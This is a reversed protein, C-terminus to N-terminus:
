KLNTGVLPEVAAVAREVKSSQEYYSLEYGNLTILNDLLTLFDVSGVEYGAIASELALTSQPILTTGYLRRLKQATTIVLHQDKIKFLLVATVNELRKREVQEGAAAEAVAPRQKQWFYLPVKIGVTMGFMEPMGPRNFYTFGFSFDPYLEKEALEVAYQGRDMKRRQMKLTPSNVLALENLEGLAYRFEAPKIEDPKPIPSESDRFILSNLRAEAAEKRQELLALQEILKSIEVQAKLLDQQIGKGVAYRAEAIKELKELLEKNKATIEIAKTLFCLDFYTDKVEAVVNLRTQEYAWRESEVDMSAMKGKLSLKGPFPLEQSFSLMRASSPDGKQIQFGPFPIINGAYGVSLTPDPLARTQPVRAQFMEVSRQMAKIEPNRELAQEILGDLLAPKSERETQEGLGPASTSAIKQQAGFAMTASLLAVLTSRVSAKIRTPNM